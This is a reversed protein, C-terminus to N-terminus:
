FHLSVEVGTFVDQNDHLEIGDIFRYRSFVRIDVHRQSIGFGAGLYNDVENHHDDYHHHYHDHRDDVVLLEGIDIGAELYLSIESFLGIRVNGEWATYHDVWGDFDTIEASSLGTGLQYGFDSRPFTFESYFNITNIDGIDSVERSVSVGFTSDAYSVTSILMVFCLGIKRFM